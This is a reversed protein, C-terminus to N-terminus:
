KDNLVFRWSGETHKNWKSILLTQITPNVEDERTYKEDWTLIVNNNEKRQAVTKTKKVGRRQKKSKKPDRIIMEPVGSVDGQCWVLIHKGDEEEFDCLM